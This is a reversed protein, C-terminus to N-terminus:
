QNVKANTNQKGMKGVMGAVIQGIEDDLNSDLLTLGVWNELLHTM